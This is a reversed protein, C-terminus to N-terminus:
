SFCGYSADFDGVAGGSAHAHGGMGFRIEYDAGDYAHGSEFGGVFGHAGSFGNAQRVFFTKDGRSFQDGGLGAALALRKQGDVAFVIGNMLAQAASAHLFDLADPEGSGASREQVSRLCFKGRDGNVLGQIMGGPLHPAADGDIGRGQHVFAEFHDLGAAQEVQRGVRM